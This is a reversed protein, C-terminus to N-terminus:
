NVKDLLSSSREKAAKIAEKKNKYFPLVEGTIFDVVGKDSAQNKALKKLLREPIQNGDLDVSPYNVWKNGIQFTVTRESYPQGDKGKYVKRGKKTLLGGEDKNQRPDAKDFRSAFTSKFQQPEFM